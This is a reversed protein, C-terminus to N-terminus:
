WCWCLLFLVFVGVESVNRIGVGLVCVVLVFSVLGVGFLDFVWVVGCLLVCGVLVGWCLFVIVLVGICGGSSGMWSDDGWLILVVCVVCGVRVDGVVCCILVSCWSVM